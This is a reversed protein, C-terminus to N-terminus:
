CDGGEWPWPQQMWNWTEASSASATGVTLPGYLRGYERIATQYRRNHLRFYAMAEQKAPHTDLYLLAEYSAFGEEDIFNLLSRRNGVPLDSLDERRQGTDSLCASGSDAAPCRSGSAEQNQGAIRCGSESEESNRRAMQRGNVPTMCCGMGYSMRNM